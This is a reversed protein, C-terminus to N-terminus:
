FYILICKLNEKNLPGLILDVGKQESEKQLNTTQVKRNKLLAGMFHGKIGEHQYM